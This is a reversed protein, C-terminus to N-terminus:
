VPEIDEEFVYNWETAGTIGLWALLSVNRCVTLYGRRCAVSPKAAGASGSKAPLAMVQNGSAADIDYTHESSITHAYDVAARKASFSFDTGLIWGRCKFAFHPESGGFYFKDTTRLARFTSK